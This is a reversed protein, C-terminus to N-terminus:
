IFYNEGDTLFHIPLLKSGGALTKQVAIMHAKKLIVPHATYRQMGKKAMWSAKEENM